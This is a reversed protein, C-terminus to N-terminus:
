PGAAEFICIYVLWKNRYGVTKTLDDGAVDVEILDGFHDFLGDAVGAAYGKFEVRNGDAVTDGHAVGAHFIRKGATFDDSIGDFGHNPCM